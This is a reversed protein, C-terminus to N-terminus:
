LLPVWSNRTLLGAFWLIVIGGYCLLWMTRNRDPTSITNCAHKAIWSTVVGAALLAQIQVISQPIYTVISQYGVIIVPVMLLIAALGTVVQRQRSAENPLVLTKLGDVAEGFVDWYQQATKLLVASSIVTAWIAIFTTTASPALADTEM